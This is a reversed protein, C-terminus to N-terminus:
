PEEPNTFRGKTNGLVTLGDDHGTTQGDTQRERGDNARLHTPRGRVAVLLQRDVADAIKPAHVIAEITARVTLASTGANRAIPM